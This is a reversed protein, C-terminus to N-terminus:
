GRFKTKSGKIGRAGQLDSKQKSDRKIAWSHKFRNLNVSGKAVIKEEYSAIRLKLYRRRLM